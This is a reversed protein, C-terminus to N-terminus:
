TQSSDWFYKGFKTFIIGIAPIIPKFAGLPVPLDVWILCILFWQQPYVSSISILGSTSRSCSEKNPLVLKLDFCGGRLSIFVILCLPKPIFNRLMLTRIARPLAWDTCHSKVQISSASTSEFSSNPILTLVWLAISFIPSIPQQQSEKPLNKSRLQLLVNTTISSISSPKFWREVLLVQLSRLDNIRLVTSTFNFSHKSLPPSTIAASASKVSM